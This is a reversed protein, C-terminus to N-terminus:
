TLSCLDTINTELKKADLATLNTSVFFLFNTVRVGQLDPRCESLWPLGRDIYRVAGQAAIQEEYSPVGTANCENSAHYFPLCNSTANMFFARGTFPAKWCNGAIGGMYNGVMLSDVDDINIEDFYSVLTESNAYNVAIKLWLFTGPDLNLGSTSYFKAGNFNNRQWIGDCKVTIANPYLNQWLVTECNLCSAAGVNNLQSLTPLEWCYRPCVECQEGCCNPRGCEECTYNYPNNSCDTTSNYAKVGTCSAAVYGSSPRSCNTTPGYFKSLCRQQCTLPLLPDERKRLDYSQVGPIYVFNAQSECRDGAQLYCFVEGDREEKVFGRCKPNLICSSLCLLISHSSVPGLHIKELAYSYSMTAFNRYSDYTVGYYQQEVVAGCVALLLIMGAVVSLGVYRWLLALHPGEFQWAM